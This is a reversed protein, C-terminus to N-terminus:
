GDLRQLEERVRRRWPDAEGADGDVATTPSSGGANSSARSRGRRVVLVIMGLGLVVVAVPTWYALRNFGKRAPEALIREGYGLVIARREDRRQVEHVYYELMEPRTKGEAVMARVEAIITPAM